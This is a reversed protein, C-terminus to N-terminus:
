LYAASLVLGLLGYSDGFSACSRAIDEQAHGRLASERAFSRLHRPPRGTPRCVEQAAKQPHLRMLSRGCTALVLGFGVLFTIAGSPRHIQVRRLSRRASIWAHAPLAARRVSLQRVHLANRRGSTCVMAPCTGDHTGSAYRIAERCLVCCDYPRNPFNALQRIRAAPGLVRLFSGCAVFGTGSRPDDEVGSRM